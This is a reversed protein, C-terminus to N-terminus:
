ETARGTDWDMHRKESLHRRIVNTATIADFEPERPISDAWALYERSWGAAPDEWIDLLLRYQAAGGCDEPPCAGSGDLCTAAGSHEDGDSVATLEIRHEWWDGFDYEYGLERGRSELVDTVIM